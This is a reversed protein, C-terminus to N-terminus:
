WKGIPCKEARLYTKIAMKCGCKTCRDQSADFFECGKCIELRQNAQTTPLNITNGAAVSQINRVLSNGLNKAMQTTSPYQLNRPVLPNKGHKLENIKAADLKAKLREKEIM